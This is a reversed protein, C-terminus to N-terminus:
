LTKRKLLTELDTFGGIHNTKFFIIPITKQNNTREQLQEIIDIGHRYSIDEIDHFVYKFKKKKLLLVANTCWPCWHTGYVTFINKNKPLFSKLIKIKGPLKKKRHLWESKKIRKWKGEASKKYYYTIGNKALLTKYKM